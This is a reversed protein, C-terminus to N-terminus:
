KCTKEPVTACPMILVVVYSHNQFFLSVNASFFHLRVKNEKYTPKRAQFFSMSFAKEHQKIDVSVKHEGYFAFFGKFTTTDYALRAM